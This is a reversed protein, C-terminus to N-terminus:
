NISMKSFSKHIENSQQSQAHKFTNKSYLRLCLKCFENVLDKITGYLWNLTLLFSLIDLFFSCVFIRIIDACFCVVLRYRGFCLCECCKFFSHEQGVETVCCRVCCLRLM